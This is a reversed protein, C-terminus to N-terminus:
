GGIEALRALDIECLDFVGVIATMDDALAPDTFDLNDFICSAEAETFGSAVLEATAQERITGAGPDFDNGSSGPTTDDTNGSGDATIGCVQENYVEINDSAAQMIADRDELVSLDANLFDYDVAILADQLQKFGELTVDLDGQLEPPAFEIAMEMLRLAETFAEEVAAPDTFDVADIAASADEVEQAAVCWDSGADGQFTPQDGTSQGETTTTAAPETSATTVSPMTTASEDITDDVSTPTTAETSADGGGGCAGLVLVTVALASIRKKM